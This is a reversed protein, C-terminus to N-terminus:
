KNNCDSVDSVTGNSDAEKDAKTASQSTNSSASEVNQRESASWINEQKWIEHLRETAVIQIAHRLFKQRQLTVASTLVLGNFLRKYEVTLSQQRKNESLISCIM